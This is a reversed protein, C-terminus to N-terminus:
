IITENDDLISIECAAAVWPTDVLVKNKALRRVYINGGEIYCYLFVVCCACNLACM